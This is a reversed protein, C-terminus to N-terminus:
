KLVERDGGREAPGESTDHNGSHRRQFGPWRAGGGGCIHGPFEEAGQCLAGKPIWRSRTLEQAQPFSSM